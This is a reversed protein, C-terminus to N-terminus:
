GPRMFANGIDSRLPMLLGRSVKDPAEVDYGDFIEGEFPHRFNPSALYGIKTHAIEADRQFLL